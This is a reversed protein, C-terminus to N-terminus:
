TSSKKALTVSLARLERVVSELHTITSPTGDIIWGKSDVEGTKATGSKYSEIMLSYRKIDAEIADRINIEDIPM